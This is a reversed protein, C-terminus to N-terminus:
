ELLPKRRSLQETVTLDHAEWKEWLPCLLKWFHKMGAMMDSAHLSVESTQFSLRHRTTSQAIYSSLKQSEVERKKLQNESEQSATDKRPEKLRAEPISINYLRLFHSKAPPLLPSTILRSKAKNTQM